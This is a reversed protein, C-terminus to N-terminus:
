FSLENLIGGLGLVLLSWFIDAVLLHLTEEAEQKKVNLQKTLFGVMLAIGIAHWIVIVPAGLPVLFLDWMRLTVYGRFLGGVIGLVILGLAKM